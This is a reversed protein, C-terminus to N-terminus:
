GFALLQLAPLRVVFHSRGNGDVPAIIRRLFFDMRKRLIEQAIGLGGIDDM